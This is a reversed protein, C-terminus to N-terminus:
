ESEAAARAPAAPPAPLEPADTAPRRSLLETLQFAQYPREAAPKGDTGAYAVWFRTSKPAFLANHLNSKAAVGRDMLKLAAAADVKGHAAQVRDVLCNYRDGASLLVADPVAKPLLPHAQGPQIVEFRNWSAEFGIAKGTEGDAAVYFYQCTRPQDRFIAVVDDLSKADRLVQRVLVAMPVGEWHGLGRGGMEGISVHEANMGTVSGVFGAFSVNVSAAGVDPKAIVLLAHEQLKWDTAYDLVRGHFLEGGVTATNMVAFGSCHFLEPIFNAREVREKPLGSAAAMGALEDTYWAPLRKRQVEVISAILDEPGLKVGFGVELQVSKAKDDLLHLLNGRVREKLLAGHQWGMEWPTGEVHLIFLDGEKELWGKGCRAITEGAVAPAAGLLAAAALLLWLAFSRRVPFAARGKWGLGMM